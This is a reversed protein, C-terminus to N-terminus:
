RSTAQDWVVQRKHRRVDKHAIPTGVMDTLIQVVTKEQVLMSESVLTKSLM